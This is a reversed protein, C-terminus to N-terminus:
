ERKCDTRNFIAFSGDKFNFQVVSDKNFLNKGFSDFTFNDDGRDQQGIVGALTASIALGRSDSVGLCAYYRNDTMSDSCSYCVSSGDDTTPTTPVSSSPISVVTTSVPSNGIGCM